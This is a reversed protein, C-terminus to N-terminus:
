NEEQEPEAEDNDNAGNEFGRGITILAKITGAITLLPEGEALSDLEENGLLKKLDDIHAMVAGALKEGLMTLVEGIEEPTTTIEEM